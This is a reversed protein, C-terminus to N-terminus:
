FMSLQNPDKFINKPKRGTELRYIITNIEDIYWQRDINSLHYEENEVKNLICKLKDAPKVNTNKANTTNDEKVMKMINIGKKATYYRILKPLKVESGDKNFTAHYFTNGASSRACFDYIRNYNNVFETVDKKNIFYEKLALPIIRNSKNKHLLTDTAFVGKQKLEGDSKVGIYHNVSLFYIYQFEFYELQYETLNCWNNCIEYFKDVEKRKVLFTAGDTNSMICHNGIKAQQEILMLISLEGAICINLRAQPDYMWNQIDGLKGYVSVGAEKYGAVEGAIKNDKKALPKLKTREDYIWQYSNVFVKKNLHKPAYENNLLTKIYYATVDADIILYEDDSEYSKSDIENHIGGLAFTHIQGDFNIKEEFDDTANIEKIKMRKLFDQLKKDEFKVYDPIGSKFKLIKRFTGKKPLDSIEVGSNKAYLHKVIEDGYKSNSYNTCDFGFKESLVERTQIENRGKYLEHEIDGILHKYFLYTANVDHYCYDILEQNEEDTFTEKNVPTPLEEINDMDMEYELRKLGVRRNKNDYHAIKFLDIQRFTLNSEQYPPFKGYNTDHIVDSAFLSIKSSIELNNLNLFSEYNRWIYEIVQGDFNVNNYGIYNGEKFLELFRILEILQNEKQWISFQYWKKEEVHYAVFLFNGKITEIDYIINM